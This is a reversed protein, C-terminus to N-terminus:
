IINHIINYIKQEFELMFNDANCLHSDLLLKRYNTNFINYNGDSSLSICQKITEVYKNIDYVIHNNLKLNKLISYSVRSVHNDGCITIIPKGMLLCEFTTTVGTYPYTDLMIDINNYLKFHDYKNKTRDYFIIRNQCINHKKFHKLFLEKNINNSKIVFKSNKYAKLVKSWLFIIQSNIKKYNNFSGFTMYNNTKYPWIITPPINTEPKYCMFFKNFKVLTESYYKDMQQSNTWNDVFKYINRIGITNPYGIWSIVKKAINYKLLEIRNGKTHGNLEFLIDLNYKKLISVVDSDPLGYINIFNPEQQYLKTNDDEINNNYIWYVKYKQRNYKELIPQIFYNVSHDRFDSSLFGIKYKVDSKSTDIHNSFYTFHNYVVSENYIKSVIINPIYNLLYLYSSIMNNDFYIAKKFYKICLKYKWLEFYNFGINQYIKSYTKNLKLAKAYFIFSKNDFKKQYCVAINFYADVYNSDIDLVKNYNTISKDYENINKYCNALNFYIEKLKVYNLSKNYYKIADKYQNKMNYCLGILPYAEIRKSKLLYQLAKDWQKNNKYNCGLKYDDM